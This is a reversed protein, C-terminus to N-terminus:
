ILKKIREEFRSEWNNRVIFSIDDVFEIPSYHLSLVSYFEVMNKVYINLSKKYFEMDESCNKLMINLIHASSLIHYAIEKNSDHIM